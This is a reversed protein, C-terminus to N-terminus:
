SKIEWKEYELDERVEKIRDFDSDFTITTMEKVISVAAIFIDADEVGHEKGYKSTLRAWIDSATNFFKIDNLFFIGFAEVLKNLSEIYNKLNKLLYYRYQQYYTISLMFIENDSSFIKEEIKSKVLEPEEIWKIFVNTDLIYKM